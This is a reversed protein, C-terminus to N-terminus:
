ANRGFDYYFAMPAVRFTSSAASSRAAIQQSTDTTKIIPGVVAGGNVQIRLDALPAVAASPASDTDNPNRVYLNTGATAQVFAGLMMVKVSLGPPVSALAYSTSTAGLNSVDVDLTPATWWYEGNRWTFLRIAGGSDNYVFGILRFKTYGSPRNAATLSTDFGYDVTADTDKLIAFVYYWTSNTDNVGSFRGGQNTGAAWTADLQKTMAGGLLNSTNTSDIAQGATIDVDNTVDGAANSVVMGALYGRPLIGQVTGALVYELATGAANIRAVYLATTLKPLFGHQSASANNTTIDSFTLTADTPAPTGIM